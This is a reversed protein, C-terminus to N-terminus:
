LRPWTHDPKGDERPYPGALEVKDIFAMPAMIKGHTELPKNLMESAEKMATSKAGEGIYTAILIGKIYCDLIWYDNKIPRGRKKKSTLRTKQKIKNSFDHESSFVDRGIKKFKSPRGVKRPRGRATRPFHAVPNSLLGVNRRKKRPNRKVLEASKVFKSNQLKQKIKTATEHDNFAFVLDNGEQYKYYNVGGLSIIINNHKDDRATARLMYTPNIRVASM